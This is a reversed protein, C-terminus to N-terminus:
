NKTVQQKFNMNKFNHKPTQGNLYNEIKSRRYSTEYAESYFDTSESKEEFDKDAQNKDTYNGLVYHIFHKTKDDHEIGIIVLNSDESECMVFISSNEKVLKSKIVILKPCIDNHEPFSFLVGEKLNQFYDIPQPEFAEPCCPFFAPAWWMFQACWPTLALDLGPERGFGIDYRTLPQYIKKSFHDKGIKSYSPKTVKRETRAWVNMRILCNQAEEQTVARMWNLNPESQLENLMSPNELFAEVSGCLFEIKKRTIPNLLANELRTLWRLNEPRNNRRNTDIHDAVYEKAPPEGHFASAVIRHVRKQGFHMYGNQNNPKGFDWKNDLQRPRKIDKPHRLVAGNDRVSYREGDYICDLEKQFDDVSIMNM